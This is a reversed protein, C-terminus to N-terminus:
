ENPDYDVPFTESQKTDTNEASVVIELMPFLNIVFVISIIVSIFSLHIKSKNMMNLGKM